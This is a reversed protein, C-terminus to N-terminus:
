VKLLLCPARYHPAGEQVGLTYLWGLTESYLPYSEHDKFSAHSTGEIVSIRAVVPHNYSHRGTSKVEPCPKAGEGWFYAHIYMYIYTYLISIHLIMANIQKKSINQAIIGLDRTGLLLGKIAAGSPSTYGM